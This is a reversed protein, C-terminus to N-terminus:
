YRRSCCPFSKKEPDSFVQFLKKNMRMKSNGPDGLERAFENTYASSCYDNNIFFVHCSPFRFWFGHDNFLVQLRYM